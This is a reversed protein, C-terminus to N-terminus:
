CPETSPRLEPVSIAGRRSFARASMIAGIATNLYQNFLRWALVSLGLLHLPLLRAFLAAFAAEGLGAGGPSPLFSILFFLISGLALGDPYSLGGGLFAIACWILSLNALHTLGTLACGSAALLPRKRFYARFSRRSRACEALTRAIIRDTPLEKRLILAARSALRVSFRAAPVLLAPVFLAALFLGIGAVGLAGTAYFATALAPSANLTAPCFAMAAFASLFNVISYVATKTLVATSGSGYSIGRKGLAAIAFPQGGFSSPTVANFFLRVFTNGIAAGLGLREGGARVFLALASADLGIGALWLLAMPVVGRPDLGAAAEWTKGNMTSALAAITLAAVCLYAIVGRMDKKAM